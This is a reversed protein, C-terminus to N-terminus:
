TTEQNKKPINRKYMKYIYTVYSLSPFIRKYKFTKFLM